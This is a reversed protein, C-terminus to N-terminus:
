NKPKCLYPKSSFGMVGNCRNQNETKLAQKGETLCTAIM